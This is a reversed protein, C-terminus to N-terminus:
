KEASNIDDFDDRFKFDKLRQKKAREKLKELWGEVLLIIESDPIGQNESQMRFDVSHGNNKVIWQILLAFNITREKDRDSTGNEM